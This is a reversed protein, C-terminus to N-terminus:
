PVQFAATGAGFTFEDPFDDVTFRFATVAHSPLLLLLLWPLFLLLRTGMAMNERLCVHVSPKKYTTYSVAARIVFRWGTAHPWSYKV